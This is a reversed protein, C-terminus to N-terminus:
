KISRSDTLEIAYEVIGYNGTVIDEAFEESFNYLLKSFDEKQKTSLNGFNEKQFQKDLGTKVLFDHELICNDTIDVIVFFIRESFEKLEVLSEIKEKTLLSEWNPLAVENSANNKQIDEIEIAKTVVKRLSKAEELQLKQRLFPNRIANIFQTYTIKDQIEATCKPYAFRMIKALDVALAALYEKTKLKRNNFDTCNRQVCFNEGFRIELQVKRELFSLESLNLIHWFCELHNWGKMIIRAENSVRIRDSVLDSVSIQYPEEELISPPADIQLVNIM